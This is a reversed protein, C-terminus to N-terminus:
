RAQVWPNLIQVPVGRFDRLNRTALLFDNSIAIAAIAADAFDIDNGVANAAAIVKSFASAASLDFGLVRDSFLPLVQENVAARLADRRRGKLMKELGTFMEAATITTIFLTTPAQISLWRMLEPDPKLKLPESVVNTDLVIM